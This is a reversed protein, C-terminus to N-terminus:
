SRTGFYAAPDRGRYLVSAIIVEDEEVQYFITAAGEFPVSRLGARLEDRPTGGYPLDGIKLCRAVLKAAFNRAVAPSAERAIYNGIDEIQDTAEDLFVVPLTLLKTGGEGM